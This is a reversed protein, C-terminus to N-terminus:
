FTFYELDADYIRSHVTFQPHITLNIVPNTNAKISSSVRYYVLGLGILIGVRVNVMAMVKSGLNVTPFQFYSM